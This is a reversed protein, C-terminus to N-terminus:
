LRVVMTRTHWFEGFDFGDPAGQNVRDDTLSDAREPDAIEGADERVLSDFIDQSPDFTSGDAIDAAAGLVENDVEVIVSGDDDM